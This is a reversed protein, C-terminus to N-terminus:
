GFILSVRYIFFGLDRVGRFVSRFAKLKSNFSEALANTTRNNFFNLITEKHSNISHAATIFSDLNHNLVKKYWTTFNKVAGKRNKTTEYISRFMMSLGYAKKIDPFEHFLIKGRLKQSDSWKHQPKFLLYRSRALLQKKSDGNEYTVPSHKKGDKKAQKVLENEEKIAEWRYAIRIEQVAETILKAVHFRDTVVLASPFCTSAIKEMNNAMDVSIEKVKARQELPIKSAIKIVDQSKVGKVMAILSGKQCRASANTLITYLEGDSLAVEDLCLREGINEPFLM